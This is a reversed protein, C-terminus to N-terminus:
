SVHYLHARLKLSAKVNVLDFNLLRFRERDHRFKIHNWDWNKKGMQRVVSNASVKKCM